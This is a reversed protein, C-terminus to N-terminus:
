LDSLVYLSFTALLAEFLYGIFLSVKLDFHGFLNFLLLFFPHTEFPLSSHCYVAVDRHLATLKEDFSQYSQL